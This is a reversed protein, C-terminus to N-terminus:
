TRRRFEKRIVRKGTTRTAEIDLTADPPAACCACEFPMSFRTGSADVQM